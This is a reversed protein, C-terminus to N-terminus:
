EWIVNYKQSVEKVHEQRKKELSSIKYPHERNIQKKVIRASDGTIKIHVNKFGFMALYKEIGQLYLWKGYSFM